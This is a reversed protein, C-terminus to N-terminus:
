PERWKEARWLESCCWLVRCTRHGDRRCTRSACEVGRQEDRMLGVGDHNERAHAM